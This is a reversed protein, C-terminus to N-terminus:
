PADPCPPVDLLWFGALRSAADVDLLVERALRITRAHRTGGLSFHFNREADDADVVLATEIELSTVDLDSRAPVTVRGDEIARPLRLVPSKHVPPWGAVELGDISGSAVDLLVWSGDQGELAVRGSMGGGGPPVQMSASLIDTEPDWRYEVEVRFGDQPQIEVAITMPPSEHPTPANPHSRVRTRALGKGARM